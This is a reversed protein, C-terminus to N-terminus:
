SNISLVEFIPISLAASTMLVYIVSLCCYLYFFLVYFIFEWFVTKIFFVVVYFYSRLYKM